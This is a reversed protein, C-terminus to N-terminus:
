SLHSLYHFRGPGLYGGYIDASLFVESGRGPALYAVRVWKFSSM